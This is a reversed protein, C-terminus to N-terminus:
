DSGDSGGGPWLMGIVSTVVVYGVVGAVVSAPHRTLGDFAIGLTETTEPIFAAEGAALALAFERLEELVLILNLPALIPAIVGGVPPGLLLDFATGVGAVMVCKWWLPAGFWFPRERIARSVERGARSTSGM